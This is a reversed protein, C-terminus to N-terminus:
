HWPGSPFHLCITCRPGRTTRGELCVQPAEEQRETGAEQEEQESISQAGSEDDHEDGMGRGDAPQGGGEQEEPAEPAPPPGAPQAPAAGQAAQARRDAEINELVRRRTAQHLQARGQMTLCLSLVPSAIQPWFPPQSPHEVTDIAKFRNISRLVAHIRSARPDHPDKKLVAKWAGELSHQLQHLDSRGRECRALFDGVPGRLDPHLQDWWLALHHQLRLLDQVRATTRIVDLAESTGVDITSRPALLEDVVGRHFEMVKM